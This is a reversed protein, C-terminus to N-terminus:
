RIANRQRWALIAASDVDIDHTVATNLERLREAPALEILRNRTLVAQIVEVHSDLIEALYVTRDGTDMRTEVRCDLWALAGTLIPSGTAGSWTALGSLKDFDRGSRLAFRWVWDLHGEGILHMAFAGSAEILEWTYHQKAVGIMVRPLTPVLSGSAVYTAILGGQREGARATVLWLERDLDNFLGSLANFDM